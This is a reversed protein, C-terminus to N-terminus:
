RTRTRRPTNYTRATTSPRLPGHMATLREGIAAAATAMAKLIAAKHAGTFRSAPLYLGLAAVVRGASRIPRGLGVIQGKEVDLSVEDIAVIGGFRRTVNRVSLLAM